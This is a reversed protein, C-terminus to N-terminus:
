RETETMFGWRIGFRDIFTVMCSGYTTRKMPYIIKCGEFMIEYAKKVDDENDFTVVLSLSTGFSIGDISDSLMLRQNGICIEAHYVYRNQESTLPITWDAPNADLYRLFVKVYAGFAKKYLEIADECQGNFQFNPTVILM